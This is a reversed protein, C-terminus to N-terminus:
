GGPPVPSGGVSGPADPETGGAGRATSGYAPNQLFEEEPGPESIELLERLDGARIKLGMDFAARLAALKEDTKESELEIVWRFAGADLQPWNWAVLRRVLQDTLTEQLNLADYRVIQLFTDLHVSALNSGLGTAHAETTLTQGLIYRKIQHGFYETIIDKLAQAGALSPEMREVGYVAGEMGMPRPVLLINKNPGARESAAQRWEERAQPNGAPYYWLEIGFASRELFEMLWALAEQKQYWTWYIRDRIGVGFVKGANRPEEYEGDEIYHRHVVLLDRVGPPPFYAWGYETAEIWARHQEHWRRVQESLGSIGGVRIGLGDWLDGADGDVKWVLKDGHIPVWSAITVVKQGDIWDWAFRNAVAYRGFWLAHLLNERLQMFRPIRRLIKELLTRARQHESDERDCEVRGDLLAVARQRLEVCEMVAADSRMKIANHRAIKLATDSPWYVRAPGGVFLSLFGAAHPVVAQGQGPPMGPIERVGDQTVLYLVDGPM